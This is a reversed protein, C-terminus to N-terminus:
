FYLTTEDSGARTRWDAELGHGKRPVEHVKVKITLRGNEREISCDGDPDIAEGWLPV